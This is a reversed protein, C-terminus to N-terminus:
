AAKFKTYIDTRKNVIDPTPNLIFRYGNTYSVPVNFMPDSRLAKPVLALGKAMPIAYNHYNMEQAAIKPTLLFNIWAHAAKPHPANALICWNDAWKESLGHPLVATIDGQKKRAAVIRRVDGNWGQGLIIKGASGDNIYNSSTITTVGSRISLLFKEVKKFDTSSDTNPDLGLAMLALPVVEEAGDLLNTRGKKGYKPLLKYFDLMTKPREKVIDNRYFFMTIGYDKVVSYSDTPDYSRKRWAPAINVYNPLLSKDLKLLRKLEILEAVANQSPVVIDYGAGGAQLKALLEDNSSYYTEHITTGPFKKMFDKYTRPDDYQSWNYIVLESEISSARAAGKAAGALGGAALLALGAVGLADRRDVRRGAARNVAAEIADFRKKVGPPALIRLGETDDSM